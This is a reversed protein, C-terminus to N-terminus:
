AALVSVTTPPDFDPWIYEFSAAPTLPLPRPLNTTSAYNDADSRQGSGSYFEVYEPYESMDPAQVIRFRQCFETDHDLAPFCQRRIVLAQAALSMRNRLARAVDSYSSGAPDALASLFTVSTGGDSPFVHHLDYHSIMRRALPMVWGRCNWLCIGYSARFNDLLSHVCGIEALNPFSALLWYLSDCIPWDMLRTELPQGFSVRLAPEFLPPQALNVSQEAVIVYSLGFLAVPDGPRIIYRTPIRPPEPTTNRSLRTDPSAM